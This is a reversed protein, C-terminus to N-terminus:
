NVEPPANYYDHTHWVSFTDSGTGDQSIQLNEINATQVSWARDIHEMNWIQYGQQRHYLQLDTFRINRMYSWDAADKAPVVKDGAFPLLSMFRTFRVLPNGNSDRQYLDGKPVSFELMQYDLESGGSGHFTFHGILKDKSGESDIKADISFTVTEVMDDPVTKKGYGENWSGRDWKGSYYFPFWGRGENEIGIDVSALGTMIGLSICAVRKTCQASVLNWTSDRLDITGIVNWYSSSFEGLVYYHAGACQEIWMPEGKYKYIGVSPSSLAISSNCYDEDHAGHIVDGPDTVMMGPKQDDYLCWTPARAYGQHYWTSESGVLIAPSSENCDVPCPADLNMQVGNIHIGGALWGYETSEVKLRRTSVDFGTPISVSYTRPPDDKLPLQGPLLFEYQNPEASIDRSYVTFRPKVISQGNRPLYKTQLM